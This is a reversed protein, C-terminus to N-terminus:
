SASIEQYFRQAGGHMPIVLDDFLFSEDIMASMSPHAQSLKDRFQWLSSTLQYVLEEDMSADVCLLCKVGFTEIDSHQGPYTEAPLVVPVYLSNSALIADLEARTYRLIRCPTNQALTSLATIPPGSFGHLADLEGDLVMEGGAGLGCNQVVTGEVELELVQIAAQASLETSSSQPGVGIRMGKLDHVYYAGVSTPAIWNSQSVFVAAIARLNEGSHDPSYFAAYATDGSVLALDFEGAALNQINMASGSSAGINIKLADNSLTQAIASGVPYMTGGSDATGITLVTLDSPNSTGQASCGTFLFLSAAALFAAFPRFAM